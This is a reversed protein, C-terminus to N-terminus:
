DEWRVRHTDLECDIRTAIKAGQYQTPVSRLCRPCQYIQAKERVYIAQGKPVVEEHATM